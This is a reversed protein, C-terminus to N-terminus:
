DSVFWYAYVGTGVCELRQPRRRGVKQHKYTLSNLARKLANISMRKELGLAARIQCHRGEIEGDHEQLAQLVLEKAEDPGAIAVSM